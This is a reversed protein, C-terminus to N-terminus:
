YLPVSDDIEASWANIGGDVNTADYGLAILAEVARASRGGVKCHVIVPKSKEIEDLRELLEGLPILKAGDIKCFDNEDQERVDIFQFDENRDLKAKLEHVDIAPVNPLPNPIAPMGCFQEYDIPETISPNDGCVPCQSDRRLKFERFKLALADYHLLRGTASEGIGTLLKIAEMAQLSGIVGPLVGLVGGEACNPVSGPEPPNPFLCRYCPGGLKPAFVAVQGEFRFISGYVNPIGLFVAVDNSLYRTPFNDTGDILLDYGRALDMANDSRFVEDHVTVKITPNLDRLRDAAADIKKKGVDATGFLLQRQLNSADVTDADVIGIHGVGAAALYMTIPSGLGGAGICLVSSGKLRRQGEVGFEPLSFHRAYREREEPSFNM